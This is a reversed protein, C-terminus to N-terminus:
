KVGSNDLSRTNEINDLCENVLIQLEEDDPVAVKIENVYKEINDLENSIDKATALSNKIFWYYKTYIQSTVNRYILLAIQNNEDKAINPSAIEVLNNWYEKVEEVPDGELSKGSMNQYAKSMSSLLEARHKIQETSGMKQAIDLWRQSVTIGAMSFNESESKQSSPVYSFYLAQGLKYAVNDAYESPYKSKLEDEHEYIADKITNYEDESLKSDSTCRELLKQYALPNAPDVNIADLYYKEAADQSVASDGNAIYSEYTSSTQVTLGASFGITGVLMVITMIFSALFTKWKFSQVKKNEIDLDKYHDLAYLLEACSQYRDEPNRQTCKLIIEELGSSLMPNWQRIPYMEYPPTAPNHGTVLHYMTAGLCYIDTRADTQGHGGFQEPAAYGQTGLCTTDAVSSYKFERATGFDILMVNGDPKLMVNSPKMDRYIIPPKRSHLYGLVDCLQKAWEIVDDQNQAGSTELAKSLPNGEIYDMVILFTDDCDIVDIISPLHPHNLKKLLDTEAVLNQKVVEFSQMGDKRVEKIAWQKNARENMALYVVSMGGKGVVNLIKYKEDIVSGIELM